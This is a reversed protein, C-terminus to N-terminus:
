CSGFSSRIFRSGNEPKIVEEGLCFNLSTSALQANSDSWTSKPWGRSQEVQTCLPWIGCIEADRLMLSSCITNFLGMIQPIGRILDYALKNVFVCAM